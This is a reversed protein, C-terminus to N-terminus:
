AELGPSSASAAEGTKNFKNKFFLPYLFGNSLALLTYVLFGDIINWFYFAKLHSYHNMYIASVSSFFIWMIGFVKLNKIYFNGKLVPHIFHFIWVVVIWMMFNYFYSTIWDFMTFVNNFYESNIEMQRFLYPLILPQEIIGILFYRILNLIIVLIIIKFFTM